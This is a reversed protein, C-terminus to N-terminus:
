MFDQEIDKDDSDEGSDGNDGAQYIHISYNGDKGDVGIQYKSFNFNLVETIQKIDDLKKFFSKKVEIKADFICLSQRNASKQIRFNSINLLRINSDDFAAKINEETVDKDFYASEFLEFTKVHKM